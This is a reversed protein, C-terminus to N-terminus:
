RRRPATRAASAGAAEARRVHPGPQAFPQEPGPRHLQGRVPRGPGEPHHRHRPDPPRGHRRHLHGPQGPHDRRAHRHGAAPLLGQPGRHLAVRDPRHDGMMTLLTLTQHRLAVRLGRDYVGAMADFMREMARYFRGHAGVHHKLLKACLMPTLSLSVLASMVISVALTVAFEQFMRGILGGMLFLPIFVAILSITISVITFGIEGAGKLAAQLPPLGEEMHRVINEIMVVADDVVFGVAISLAMLSLNDLTYGLLKMVAFTAIISLPVAVAPILTARGERLFVFITAVVLFVTLILTNQVDEVSARITVTRDSVVALKVAPPLAAKLSPLVAKIHDVTDIINAGPAPLVNLIVARKHNFWGALQSSFPGIEAHGIDSVRIPAGNRYAIITNDYDARSTIQDNTQIGYTQRAGRLSGKAADLTSQQLATRVDELTLGRAILKAPEVEIRMAPTAQGGITVLGVGPQQSLKEMLIGEAYDDVTTLPLTDSTLGLILVPTEAPNVARFVPPSPLTPPLSGAAANIAAQVQMEAQQLSVSPAFQLAIQSFSLASSSTMHSLGAIQGFQRELPGTVASANTKADAGPLQATVQLTAPSVDPLSAIPLTAYAALGVLLVGIMLMMTAIPRRIFPGSVGGSAAEPQPRPTDHEADSPASNPTM